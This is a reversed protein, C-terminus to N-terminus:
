SWGSSLMSKNALMNCSSTNTAVDTQENLLINGATFVKCVCGQGEIVTFDTKKRGGKSVDINETQLDKVLIKRM